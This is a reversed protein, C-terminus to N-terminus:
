LIGIPCETSRAEKVVTLCPVAIRRSMASLCCNSAMGGSMGGGFEATNNSFVCATLSGCFAGGGWRADNVALLCNSARSESMGGGGSGCQNTYFISDDAIGQM